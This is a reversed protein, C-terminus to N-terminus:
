KPTVDLENVVHSDGAVTKAIRILKDKEEGSNVPGKLTVGGNITIIKVNHAYTSLSSDSTISRRIKRTTEVDADSSSQDGATKEAVSADRKNISSNDAGKVQENQVPKPAVEGYTMASFTLSGLLLASYLASGRSKFRM